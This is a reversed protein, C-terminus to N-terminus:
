IHALKGFLLVLKRATTFASEQAATFTAVAFVELANVLRTKAGTEHFINFIREAKPKTIEFISQLDEV